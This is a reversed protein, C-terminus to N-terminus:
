PAGTLLFPAWYFPGKWKGKARVDRRADRLAGAYTRGGEGLRRFFAGMLEATSADDVSWLSAVVRRSGAVLFGRSLAFAGEGEVMRGRSTVCASLVALEAQLELDYIEFLMLAGDDESSPALALAAFLDGLRPEIKGHVALHVFKKGPLAARVAAETAAAGTLVVAPSAGLSKRRSEKVVARSEAETGPLRPLAAYAPDAVSLLGAGSAVRDALARLIGASPAYRIAPGDDIWFDSEDLRKAPRVVLAEFPLAALPGDPLVIVEDAERVRDWVADPLLVRWLANLRAPLPAREGPASGSEEPWESAAAAPPRALAALLPGMARALADTGVPGEPLALTAADAAGAVLRHFEARQPAPPVLLLGSRDPALVYLLLFGRRPV